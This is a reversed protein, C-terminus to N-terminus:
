NIKKNARYKRTTIILMVASIILLLTWFHINSVDGTQPSQTESINECSLYYGGISKTKFTLMDNNVTNALNTTTGDCSLWLVTENSHSKSITIKTNSSLEVRKGTADIYYIDYPTFSIVDQPVCSELWDYCEKEDQPIQHVVLTLDDKSNNVRIQVGNDTIVEYIGDNSIATYIGKNSYYNYKGYVDGTYTEEYEAAYCNVSCSLFILLVVISSLIRKM